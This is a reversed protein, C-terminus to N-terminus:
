SISIADGHSRIALKQKFDVINLISGRGCNGPHAHDIDAARREAPPRYQLHPCSVWALTHEAAVRPECGQSVSTRDRQQLRPQLLAGRLFSRYELSQIIFYKFIYICEHFQVEIWFHLEQLAVIDHLYSQPCERHLSSVNGGGGRAWKCNLPMQFLFNGCDM